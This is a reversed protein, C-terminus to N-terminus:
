GSRPRDLPPDFAVPSPRLTRAYLLAGRDRAYYGPRRGIRHFNEAEYLEIAPRNEEAVELHCVEMGTAALRALGAHLLARAVGRRREACTVGIRLLEAEGAGARFSAYGIPDDDGPASRAAILVLSDPHVLEAALQERSWPDDFCAAELATLTALAAVDGAGVVRIALEGTRRRRENSERAGARNAPGAPTAAAPRFYLPTTLRRPDWEPPHRAADLAAAPALAAPEIVEIRDAGPAGGAGAALRGAGFGVLTAGARRARAALEDVGIREAAGLPTRRAGPEAGPAFAQAAWEGRLVDVAALAPRGAPALLALVALTPVATAPVGGAQHLGLATAMGVRLGTFSGPGALVVVGALAGLEAGAEALSEDVMELLRLSSRAIAESRAALVEGADAVAVSVIPSATDLALVSPPAM